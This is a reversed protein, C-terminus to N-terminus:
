KSFLLHARSAFLAQTNPLMPSSTPPSLPHLCHLSVSDYRHDHQYKLSCIHLVLSWDISYYSLSNMNSLRLSKGKM